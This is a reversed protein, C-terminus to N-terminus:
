SSTQHIKCVPKQKEFKGDIFITRLEKLFTNIIEYQSCSKEKRNYVCEDNCVTEEGVDDDCNM